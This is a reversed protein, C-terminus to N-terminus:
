RRRCPSPSSASCGGWRAAWSCCRSSCRSWRSASRCCRSGVERAGLLAAKFRDMGKEIHRQTNELVVIADDVVFGTAVTIAMLSLNNLSFGLLYMVGFTGLLSVITAAAPIFTARASRLFASVVLVVLVISILLTVEIEHLSARISNTSDSAVAVNIDGPLQARLEPLTARVSDVTQIINAGPQRTVLIIIAPKGNFLGLTRTDAVSDTVEAVDMLRVPADGRWAV